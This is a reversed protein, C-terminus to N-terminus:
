GRENLVRLADEIKVEGKRIAKLLKLLDNKKFKSLEEESAQVGLKLLLDVLENKNMVVTAMTADGKSIIYRDVGGEIKVDKFALDNEFREDETLISVREGDNAFVEAIEDTTRELDELVVDGTRFSLSNEIMTQLYSDDTTFKYNSFEIHGIRLNRSTKSLYTKKM